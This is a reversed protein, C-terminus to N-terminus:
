IYISFYIYNHTIHPIYQPPSFFVCVQHYSQLLNSQFSFKNNSSSYINFNLITSSAKHLKNTLDDIVINAAILQLELKDCHKQLNYYSIPKNKKIFHTPKYMTKVQQQQLFKHVFTDYFIPQFVLCCFFNNNKTKYLCSM